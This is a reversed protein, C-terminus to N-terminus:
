RLPGESRRDLGTGLSFFRANYVYLYSTGVHHFVWYATHVHIWCLGCGLALIVALGVVKTRLAALLLKILIWSLECFFLERRVSARGIENKASLLVRQSV